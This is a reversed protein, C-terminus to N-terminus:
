FGRRRKRMRALGAAIGLIWAAIRGSGEGGPKAACLLGSGEVFVDNGTAGGQGGGTGEGGKGGTGEGGKGGTGGGAGGTGGGM